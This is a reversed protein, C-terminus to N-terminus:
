HAVYCRKLGRRVMRFYAAGLDYKTAMVFFLNLLFAQRPMRPSMHLLESYGIILQEFRKKYITRKGRLFGPGPETGLWSM